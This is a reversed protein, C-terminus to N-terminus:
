TKPVVNKWSLNLQYYIYEEEISKSRLGALCGQRANKCKTACPLYIIDSEKKEKDGKGKDVYKRRRRKRRRGIKGELRRIRKKGNELLVEKIELVKNEGEGKLNEERKTIPSRQLYGTKREENWDLLDNKIVSTSRLFPDHLM